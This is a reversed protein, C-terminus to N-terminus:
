KAPIGTNKFQDIYKQVKTFKKKDYSVFDQLKYLNKLYPHMVRKPPRITIGGNLRRDKMIWNHILENCYTKLQKQESAIQEKMNDSLFIENNNFGAIMKDVIENKIEKTILSKVSISKDIEVDYSLLVEKICKYTADKQTMLDSKSM